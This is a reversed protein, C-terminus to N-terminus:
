IHGRKLNSNNRKSVQIYKIKKVQILSGRFILAYEGHSNIYVEKPLFEKKILEVARRIGEELGAIHFEVVEPNWQTYINVRASKTKSEIEKCYKQM